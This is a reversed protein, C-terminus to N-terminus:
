PLEEIRHIATALDVPGVYDNNVRICPALECAGLCEMKQISIRGDKTPTLFDTRFHTLLDQYLERGGFMSCTINTCVHVINRGVPQDYFMDYFSIVEKIKVFPINM